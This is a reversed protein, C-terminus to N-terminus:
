PNNNFLGMELILIRKIKVDAENFIFHLLMRFNSQM